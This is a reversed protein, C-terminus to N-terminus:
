SRDARRQARLAREFAARATKGSYGRTSSRWLRAMEQSSDPLEASTSYVAMPTCHCMDHYKELEVEPDLVDSSRRGSDAFGKLIAADRTRYVIGRSALMACFACPNEDTVRAWGLVRRDARSATSVMTRGGRLAERDAAGSATVGSDRMLDDLEALFGADDLRGSQQLAEADALRKEAHVPGTVWLSTRAADDMADEDLEPWVYAEEVDAEDADDPAPPLIDDAVEAYEERLDGLTVTRTIPGPEFAPLTSGTELARYYRLYAAGLRESEARHERVVSLSAALWPDASAAPALPRVRRRWLSLVRAATRAGIRAQAIRHHQTLLLGRDRRAM